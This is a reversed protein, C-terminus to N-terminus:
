RETKSDEKTGKVIDKDKTFKKDIKDSLAEEAKKAAYNVIDGKSADAITLGNRSDMTAKAAARKAAAEDEMEKLMAAAIENSRQFVPHDQLAQLDALHDDYTPQAVGMLNTNNRNTAVVDERSYIDRNVSDVVNNYSNKAGYETIKLRSIRRAYEELSSVKGQDLDDKYVDRANKLETELRANAEEVNRKEEDTVKDPYNIYSVRADRSKNLEIMEICCTRAESTMTAKVLENYTYPGQSVESLKRSDDLFQLYEEVQKTRESSGNMQEILSITPIDVVQSVRDGFQEDMLGERNQALFSNIVDQMKKSDDFTSLLLTYQIGEVLESFKRAKAMKDKVSQDIANRHSKALKVGNEKGEVGDFLGIYIATTEACVAKEYCMMRALRTLDSNGIIMQEQVGSLPGKKDPRGNLKNEIQEIAGPTFYVYGLLDKVEGLTCKSLPKAKIGLAHPVTDKLDVVKEVTGHVTSVIKKALAKQGKSIGM